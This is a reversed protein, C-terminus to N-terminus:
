MVDGVLMFIDQDQGGATKGKKNLKRRRNPITRTFQDLSVNFTPGLLEM